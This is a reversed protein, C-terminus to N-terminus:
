RKGAKGGKRKPYVAGGVRKPCDPSYGGHAQSLCLDCQHCWNPGYPCSGAGQSHCANRQFRPCLKLGSKGIIYRGDVINSQGGGGKKPNHHGGGGGGQKLREAALGPVHLSHPALVADISVGHATGGVARGRRGFTPQEQGEKGEPARPFCPPRNRPEVLRQGGAHSVM